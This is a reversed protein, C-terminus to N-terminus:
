RTIRFFSREWSSIRMGIYSLPLACSEYGQPRRNSEVWQCWEVNAYRVEFPVVMQITSHGAYSTSRRVPLYQFKIYTTLLNVEDIYQYLTSVHRPTSCHYSTLSMIQLDITRDWGGGGFDDFFVELQIPPKKVKTALLVLLVSPLFVRDFKM